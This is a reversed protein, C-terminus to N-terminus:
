QMFSDIIQQMQPKANEQEVFLRIQAKTRVLNHEPYAIQYYTDGNLYDVYFRVAQMFSMRTCGYPLLSIELPTLFTATSLYGKAYAQFIEMNVHINDLNPDDEAGTNAATRIFDGFDSFVFGPMVTDLDVICMPNGQEDFLMNNVKTDCHNVRKTLQGEAYLKEALCMEDARQLLFDAIDQTAAKRGAADKDLAEHLQEIRFALDHFHPISEVLTNTDISALQCQFNGFAQGALFASQADIREYSLANEILVYIRWYDGEPTQYYLKGDKTPVVRLVKREVDTEGAETLLQRIHSTVRDINNQLGEVDQFINHNIRQLFYSKGGEVASKLCFSQNIIGVKIAEPLKVPNELLFQSIIQEM